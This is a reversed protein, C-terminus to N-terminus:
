DANKSYIYNIPPLKEHEKELFSGGFNEDWVPDQHGLMLVREHILSDYKDKIVWTTRQIENFRKSQATEGTEQGRETTGEHQIYLVHDVKCMMTNLFTRILLEQDDLVSLSPNHGGIKHYLDRRWSRIHNPQAYITRITVANVDPTPSYPYDIGYYVIREQGGYGFGWGEGYTVPVGGIEELCKSYVFGVDPHELYANHLLEMCDPTLEDDHDVELLYDGDCAMAIAHKNLGINGHHSCNKIVHIRFSNYSNLIDVVSDDDSDDLIWWNWNDYTQANLSNYLRDLYEKPTNHTCTFVSFLEDLPSQSRYINMKFTEVIDYGILLPKYMDTHTWKKRIEYPFTTLLGFDDLSGVTVISDPNKDEKLADYIEDVNKIHVIDFGKEANDAGYEGSKIESLDIDANCIL